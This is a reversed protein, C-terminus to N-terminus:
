VVNECYLTLVIFTRIEEAMVLLKTWEEKYLTVPFRGLRLGLRRM